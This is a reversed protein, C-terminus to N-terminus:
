GASNNSRYLVERPVMLFSYILSLRSLKHASEGIAPDEDQKKRFIGIDLKPPRHPQIPVTVTDIFLLMCQWIFSSAM